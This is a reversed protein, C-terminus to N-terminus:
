RIWTRKHRTRHCVTYFLFTSAVRGREGRWNWFSSQLLLCLFCTQGV